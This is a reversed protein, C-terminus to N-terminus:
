HASVSMWGPSPYPDGKTVANLRRYDFCFRSSGDPKPAIVIPSACESASPRIGEEALM